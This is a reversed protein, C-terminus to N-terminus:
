AGLRLRLRDRYSRSAKLETGDRLLVLVDGNAHPAIARVRDVAVMLRRHIRVFKAPDLNAEFRAMPERVLHTASGVHLALYNGQTEIWDVDGLEVVVVRGRNMVHARSLYPAAADRPLAGPQLALGASAGDTVTARFWHVIADLALTAFTLPFVNAAVHNSVTDLFPRTDGVGTLPALVCSILILTLAIGLAAAVHLAIRGAMRGAQVPYRRVLATVAPTAAGALLGAALIRMAEGDLRLAAGQAAAEIVSGPLLAVLFVIWFLAGWAIERPWNLLDTGSM